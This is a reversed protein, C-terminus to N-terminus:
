LLVRTPGGVIRRGRAHILLTTELAVTGAVTSRPPVRQLKSMACMGRERIGPRPQRVRSRRTTRPGAVDRGRRRAALVFPRLSIGAAESVSGLWRIMRRGLLIPDQPSRAFHPTGRANFRICAASAPNAYSTTRRYRVIDRPTPGGRALACRRLLYGNMVLVSLVFTQVTTNGQM